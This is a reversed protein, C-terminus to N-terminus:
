DFTIEMEINRILFICEDDAAIIGDADVDDCQVVVVVNRYTKKRLHWLMAIPAAYFMRQQTHSFLFCVSFTVAATSHVSNFELLFSEGMWRQIVCM